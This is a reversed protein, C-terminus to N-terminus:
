ILFNGLYAMTREHQLELGCETLWQGKQEDADNAQINDQLTTDQIYRYKLASADIVFASYTYRGHTNFLPHTKFYLTGQPIIYRQLQMGYVKVVEDANIQMGAKALKNISTYFGNGGLCLRENGGGADFDFVPSIANLFTTETPTTAFVTVNSTIFHRLGGTYRMPKGNAGTTEAPKGFFFAYEMAVSHDFMKRKKDNKLPDGTRTRTQKATRTIEYATKFIQLFNTKKTPNRQSVTPSTSGESYINGIKTLNTNDPIAAASTGAQARVVDFTTDSAVGNVRVIEATTADSTEILLVDGPVLNLAGSITASEADVVFVTVTTTNIVGNIQLRVQRLEEEWWSFEPDDVKESAMKSLLATLPAMGNPSRWLILERFNKPREDAAWDGTGRLGAFAAFTLFDQVWLPSFLFKLFWMTNM